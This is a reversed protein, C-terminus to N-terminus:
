DSSLEMAPEGDVFAIMFNRALDVESDADKDIV